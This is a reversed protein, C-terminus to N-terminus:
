PLASSVFYKIKYFPQKLNKSCGKKTNIIQTLQPLKSILWCYKFMLLNSSFLSYGVFFLSNFIKINVTFFFFLYNINKISYRYM